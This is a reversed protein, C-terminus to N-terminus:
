LEKTMCISNPDEFYNAFPACPIFGYGAYLERAPRFGEMTGTELSLRRIGRNAAEKLLHEVLTRGVGLGRTAEATHMSKIEAHHHGLEHLAICGVLNGDHWASWFVIDSARLGEIDLAHVSGPPSQSRCFALHAELLAAIEPGRLDDAIITLHPRAPRTM